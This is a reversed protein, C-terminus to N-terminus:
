HKSLPRVPKSSLKSAKSPKAFFKSATPSESLPKSPKSPGETRARSPKSAKSPKSPPKSAGGGEVRPGEFAEFTEDLFPGPFWGRLAPTLQHSWLAPAIAAFPGLLHQARPGLCRVFGMTRVSNFQFLKRAKQKWRLLSGHASGEFKNDSFLQKRSRGFTELGYTSVSASTKCLNTKSM